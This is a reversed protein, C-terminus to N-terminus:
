KEPFESVEAFLFDGDLILSLDRTIRLYLIEYFSNYLQDSKM